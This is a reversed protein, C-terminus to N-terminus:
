QPVYWWPSPEDLLSCMGEILKEDDLLVFANGTVAFKQFGEYGGARNRANMEGCLVSGRITWDSSIRLNRFRASEPDVAMDLLPQKLEGVLHSRYFFPAALVSVALVTALLINQKKM